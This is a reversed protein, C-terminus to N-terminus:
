APISIGTLIDQLYVTALFVGGPKLSAHIQSFCVPMAARPVHLLVQTSTVVDVGGTLGVFAEEYPAHYFMGLRELYTRWHTDDLQPPLRALKARYPLQSNTVIDLFVQLTQQLMQRDLNTRVDFLHQRGTRCYYLLPITPHWGAGFDLHVGEILRERMGNNALWDFYKLAVDIKQRVRDRTPVLSKTIRQRYYRYLTSSGPLASLMKYAAVKALWQM